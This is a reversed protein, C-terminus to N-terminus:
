QKSTAKHLIRNVVIATNNSSRRRFSQIGDGKVATETVLWSPSTRPKPSQSREAVAAFGEYVAEEAKTPPPQEKIV